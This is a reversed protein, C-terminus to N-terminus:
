AEVEHAAAMLARRAEEAERGLEVSRGPDSQRLRFAEVDSFLWRNAHQYYSRSHRGASWRTRRMGACSPGHAPAYPAAKLADAAARIDQVESRLSSVESQSACGVVFMLPLLVLLSRALRSKMPM